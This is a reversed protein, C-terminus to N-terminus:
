RPDSFISCTNIGKKTGVSREDDGCDSVTREMGVKHVENSSERWIEIVCDYMGTVEVEGLVYKGGKVRGLSSVLRSSAGRNARHCVGIEKTYSSPHNLSRLVQVHAHSEDGVAVVKPENEARVVGERPM